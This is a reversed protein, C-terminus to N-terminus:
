NGRFVVMERTAVFWWRGDKKHVVELGRGKIPALEHGASDRAGTITWSGDVIAVDPLIFRIREISATQQPGAGSSSALRQFFARIQARGTIMTGDVGVYDAGEDWFEDLAALDGRNLRSLAQDVMNRIVGEDDQQQPPTSSIAALAVTVFLGVCAYFFV